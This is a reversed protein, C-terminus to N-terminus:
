CAAVAIMRDKFRQWDGTQSDIPNFRMPHPMAVSTSEQASLEVLSYSRLESSHKSGREIHVSYSLEIVLREALSWMLM